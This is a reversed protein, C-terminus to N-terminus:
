AQKTTPPKTPCRYEKRFLERTDDDFYRRVRAEPRLFFRDSIQWSYALGAHATFINSTTSDSFTGGFFSVESRARIRAAGPGGFVVLNGGRPFWQMSVDLTYLEVELDIDFDPIPPDDEPITDGLDVVSLSAEVGLQPRFRYGGRLGYVETREQSEDDPDYVGAAVGLYGQGWAPASVGGLAMGMVLVMSRVLIPKTGMLNEKREL